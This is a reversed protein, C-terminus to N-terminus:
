VLLDNGLEAITTNEVLLTHGGGFNFLIDTGGSVSAVALAAATDAFGHATLDITDVNNQFDAIVDQGANLGIVFTDAQGGGFLLDNGLGGDLIDNNLGGDLTDAQGDGFLLDNGAGGNLTDNNAGGHLIDAQGDGNLLDNGNDGFLEDENNGGNLIDAQAGGHLIDLGDDGNLLDMDNGGFLTDAHFGGNLIDNGNGGDLTDRGNDGFLVDDQGGGNLIDEGIGGNLTDLGVGGNLTDAGDGGNLIDTDGDGNLIDDGQDGNLTDNGNGGNLTDNNNGGHLTDNQGDGFLTDNGDDGFLTDNNNGGHLVDAQSGGHLIDDGNDGFLTDSNADGFLEDAQGGGSLIDDGNGGRLIDNNAGGDLVDAQAGGDLVDDGNGGNLHDAGGNGNLIDAGDDGDLTDAGSGGSIDDSGAGGKVTVGTTTAVAAIIDNGSTGRVEDVDKFAFNDAGNIFGDGAGGDFLNAFAGDPAPSTNFPQLELIAPSVANNLFTLEIDTGTDIVLTGIGVALGNVTYSMAGPTFKADTASSVFAVSDGPLFSFGPDLDFIFQGGAFNAIGGVNVKDFQGTATGTLETRLIGNLIDLDGTITLTDTSLGPSPSASATIGATGAAGALTVNGDLTGNGGIIGGVGIAFEDARVTGGNFAGVEGDGGTDFEVSALTNDTGNFGAGVVLMVGADFLSGADEVLLGGSAGPTVGSMAERAVFTFGHSADNLFQGGDTVSVYGTSGAQKGINVIGGGGGYSTNTGSITVTSNTGAVLMTGYGGDNRGVNIGIFPDNAGGSITMAAGNTVVLSGEGARGVNVFASNSPNAVSNSSSINLESGAGNVLLFGNGDANRGVNVFAGVDNGTSSVNVVGGATINIQSQTIKPGAGDGNGVTLNASRGTLDLQGGNTVTISGYGDQRGVNVSSNKGNVTLTSGAGDVLVTGRGNPGDAVNLNGGYYSGADLTVDAGSAILLSSAPDVSGDPTGGGSPAQSVGIFAQDGTVNVQGYNTVQLVGQGNRGVQLFAGGNYSDGQPGLQTIRLESGTGDVIARGYSGDNRAIQFGPNDTSGDTNKIELLGGNTINLYGKSGSERAIRGFAAEGVYSPFSGYNDNMLVTANDINLIGYSGGLRGIDLFFTGVTAGTTVDMEGHGSLGIRLGNGAGSQYLFTGAGAVTLFGSSGTERGVRISEYNSASVEVEAGGQITIAGDTVPGVHLQGFADVGTYNGGTITVSGDVTGDAVGTTGASTIGGPGGDVGDGTLVIAM